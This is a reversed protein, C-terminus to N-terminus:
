EKLPFRPLWQHRKGVSSGQSRYCLRAPDLRFGLDVLGRYVFAFSFFFFFFYGFSVDLM